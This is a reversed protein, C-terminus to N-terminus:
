CKTINALYLKRTKVIILHIYVIFSVSLHVMGGYIVAVEHGLGEIAQSIKHIMQRGFCVFCDGPQIKNLHLLAKEEVHLPTM